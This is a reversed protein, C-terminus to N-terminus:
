SVTHHHHHKSCWMNLLLSLLRCLYSSSNTFTLPRAVAVPRVWLYLPPLLTINAPYSFRPHCDLGTAQLGTLEITWSPRVTAPALSHYLLAPQALFALTERHFTSPSSVSLEAPALEAIAVDMADTDLFRFARGHQDLTFCLDTLLRVSHWFPGKSNVMTCPSVPLLHRRLAHPTGLPSSLFTNSANWQTVRASETCTPSQLWKCPAPRAACVTM